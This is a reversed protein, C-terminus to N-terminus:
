PYPLGPNWLGWECESLSVHALCRMLSVHLTHNHKGCELCTRFLARLVVGASEQLNQKNTCGLHGPHVTNEARPFRDKM